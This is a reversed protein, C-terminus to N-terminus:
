SGQKLQAVWARPRIGRSTERTPGSPRARWLFTRQDRLARLGRSREDQPDAVGAAPVVAQARGRDFPQSFPTEGPDGAVGVVLQIDLVRQGDGALVDDDEDVGGAVEPFRVCEDPHPRGPGERGHAM